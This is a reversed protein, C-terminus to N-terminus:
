EFQNLQVPKLNPGFLVWIWVCSLADPSPYPVRGMQAGVFVNTYGVGLDQPWSRIEGQFSIHATPHSFVFGCWLCVRCFGLKESEKKESQKQNELSRDEGSTVAAVRPSYFSNETQNRLFYPLFHM